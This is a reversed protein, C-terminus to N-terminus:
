AMVRKRRKNDYAKFVILAGGAAALAVIGADFPASTGKHGKDKNDNGEHEHEHEHEDNGEGAFTVTMSLCLFLAM